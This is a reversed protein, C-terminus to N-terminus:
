AVSAASGAAQADEAARWARLRDPTGLDSWGVSAGWVLTSLGRAAGLVDHSFDVRALAPYAAALFARRATAGLGWATDFVGTLAPVLARCLALLVRARAVVVMTNWVAGGAFLSAAVDAPPKEVFARVPRVRQPARGPGPVIWGYDTNPGTPEVGAVVIADGSRASRAAELLGRRFAAANGIGHDSPTIIVIAEPDADLVPLLSLLVGAATGRDEPQFVVTAARTLPGGPEILRRHGDDVVVVTRAAPALPRFRDLTEELLSRRGDGRWFQKPVGGTVTALRRGAGAALVVTWVQTTM